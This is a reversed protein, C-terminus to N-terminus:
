SEREEGYENLKVKVTVALHTGQGSHADLQVTAGITEARQMITQLGIGKKKKNLDFGKGDDDVCVSLSAGELRLEVRVLSADAYKLANSVAEQVIRYFEFGIAQPIQKWDVGETSHYEAKTGEPLSLHWIYDGLMEDITAYQFAPPMLEHSMSRLRERTADLVALQENMAQDHCDETIARINMGLALLSNCVDDHLEAAMRERESELGDIYKRALRQETDKQLALFQREKEGAAQALQAVRAKQRQRVYLFVLILMLLLAITGGSVIRSRLLAAERELEKQQLRTIELEKEKTRYKVLFDSLQESYEERSASDRLAYATRLSKYAKPYEHLAHLCESLHLYVDYDKIDRYGAKQMDILALYSAMAERYQKRDQMLPARTQHYRYREVDTRLEGVMEELSQLCIMASDTQGLTRYANALYNYAECLRRKNNVEELVPIAKQLTVVAERSKGAINCQIAGLNVYFLGIMQPTGYRLAYDVAKQSFPLAAEPQDSDCYVTAINGYIHAVTRFNGQAECLRLAQEFSHISENLRKKRRYIAGLQNLNEILMATDKDLESRKEAQLTYVLASDTKGEYLFSSAYNTLMVRYDEAMRPEHRAAEMGKKLYFRASDYRASVNFYYGMDSSYTVVKDQMRGRVALDLAKRKWRFGADYDGDVFCAEGKWAYYERFAALSKDRVALQRISDAYLSLLEPYREISSLYACVDAYNEMAKKEAALRRLELLRGEDAAWLDAQFLFFSLICLVKIIKMYVYKPEAVFICFVLRDAYSEPIKREDAFIFHCCPM